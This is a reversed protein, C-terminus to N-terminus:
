FFISVGATVNALYWPLYRQILTGRQLTKCGKTGEKYRPQFIAYNPYRVNLIRKRLQGVVDFEEDGKGM